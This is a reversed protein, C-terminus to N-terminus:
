SKKVVVFNGDKEDHGRKVGLAKNVITGLTHENLDSPEHLLVVLSILRETKETKAALKDDAISKANSFLTFCFAAAIFHLGCHIKRYPSIIM